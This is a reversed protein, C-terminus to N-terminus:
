GGIGPRGPGAQELDMSLEEEGADPDSPLPQRAGTARFGARLYFARARPSGDAVWLTVNRAGQQRAWGTVAAMLADATGTGRVAPDVWMSVIHREGDPAGHDTQGAVIGVPGGDRWALFWARAATRDQWWQDGFASEHEYTSAFAYPADRLAALRVARLERWDRPTVRRVEIM